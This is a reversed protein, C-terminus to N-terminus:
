VTPGPNASTVNQQQAVTCYRFYSLVLSLTGHLFAGCVFAHRRLMEVGGSHPLEM